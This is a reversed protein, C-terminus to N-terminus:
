NTKERWIFDMFIEKVITKLIEPHPLDAGLYQDPCRIISDQTMELFATWDDKHLKAKKDVLMVKIPELSRNFKMKISTIEDTM